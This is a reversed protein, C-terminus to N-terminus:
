FNTKKKSGEWVENKSAKSGMKAELVTGLLSGFATELVSELFCRNEIEERFGRFGLFMCFGITKTCKQCKRKDASAELFAGFISGLISGFDVLVCQSFGEAFCRGNKM